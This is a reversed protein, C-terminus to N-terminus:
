VINDHNNIDYEKEDINIDFNYYIHREYISYLVHRKLFNLLSQLFM